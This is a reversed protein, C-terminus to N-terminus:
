WCTLCNPWCWNLTLFDPCKTPGEIVTSAVVGPNHWLRQINVGIKSEISDLLKQFEALLRVYIIHDWFVFIYLIKITKSHFYLSCVHIFTLIWFYVTFERWTKLYKTASKDVFLVSFYVNVQNGQFQDPLKWYFPEANLHQRVTAVDMVIDPFQSFVGESTGTFNSLSVVHLLKQEPILTVQLVM